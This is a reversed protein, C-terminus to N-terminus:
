KAKYFSSILLSRHFSKVPNLWNNQDHFIISFYFDSNDLFKRRNNRIHFSDIM